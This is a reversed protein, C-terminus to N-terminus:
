IFGRKYLYYAGSVALISVSLKIGANGTKEVAESTNGAVDAAQNLAYATIAALTITTIGIAM